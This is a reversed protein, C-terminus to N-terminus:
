GARGPKGPWRGGPAGVPGRIVGAEPGDDSVAPRTLTWGVLREGDLALWAEVPPHALVDLPHEVSQGEADLFLFVREWDAGSFARYSISAV